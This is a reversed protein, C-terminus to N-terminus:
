QSTLSTIRATEEPSLALLDRHSDLYFALDKLVQLCQTPLHPRLAVRWFMEQQLCHLVHARTLIDHFLGCREQLSVGHLLSLVYAGLYAAAANPKIDLLPTCGLFGPSSIDVEVPRIGVLARAAEEGCQWAVHDLDAAPPPPVQSWATRVAVILEDTSM